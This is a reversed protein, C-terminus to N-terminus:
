QEEAEEREIEALQEATLKPFPYFRNRLNPPTRPLMFIYDRVTQDDWVDVGAAQWYRLTKPTVGIYDARGTITAPSTHHMKSM